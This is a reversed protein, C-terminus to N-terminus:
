RRPTSANCLSRGPGGPGGDPGPVTADCWSSSVWRGNLFVEGRPAAQGHPAAQRAQPANSRSAAEAADFVFVGATLASCAALTARGWRGALWSAPAPRPLAGSAAMIRAAMVAAAEPPQHKPRSNQFLMTM